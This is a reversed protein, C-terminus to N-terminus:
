PLAQARANVGDTSIDIALVRGDSIHFRFGDEGVGEWIQTATGDIEGTGVMSFLETVPVGDQDLFLYTELEKQGGSVDTISFTFHLITEGGSENIEECTGTGTCDLVGATGTIEYEPYITEDDFINMMAYMTVTGVLCLAVVVVAILIMPGRRGM